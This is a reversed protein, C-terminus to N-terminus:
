PPLPNKKGVIQMSGDLGQIELSAKFSNEATERQETIDGDQNEDSKPCGFLLSMFINTIISENQKGIM